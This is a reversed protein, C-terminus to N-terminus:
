VIHSWLKVVVLYLNYIYCLERNGSNVILVGDLLLSGNKAEYNVVVRKYLWLCIEKGLELWMTEAM